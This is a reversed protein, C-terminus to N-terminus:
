RRTQWQLGSLLDVAPLQRRRNRFEKECGSQQQDIAASQSIISEGHVAAALVCAFPLSTRQLLTAPSYLEEVPARTAPPAITLM